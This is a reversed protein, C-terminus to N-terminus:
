NLVVQGPDLTTFVYQAQYQELSEQLKRMMELQTIYLEAWFEPNEQFHDVMDNVTPNFKSSSM